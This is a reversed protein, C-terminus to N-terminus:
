SENKPARPIMNDPFNRRLFDAFMPVTFAIDGHAPSYVMGKSILRARLPGLSQPSEGMRNAVETSRYPGDGLRAMAFVYDREKPTLRELRVNFFGEDLRRLAAQTAAEADRLTISEGNAHTWAQFGWEQLFYPYGHTKQAIAEVAEPDILEGEDEIPQRIAKQASEANLAGVEPYTFLREAYSKAEGAMGALQPLGAGFFIVPLNKQGVRHLAAILASLDAQSLYQVEDILLAWGRKSSSAAEGVLLFLETLDEEIIGSDAVGPEPDYAIAVDGISLKFAGAFSKLGKLASIAKSKASEILSLKRLVQHVRPYLLAALSTDDRAEIYSTLYGTDEALREIRNLLVTKGVGRLGLLIQSQASRGQIVRSLAIQAEHIIAERGALEPPQSGAGPAFPNKNPDM